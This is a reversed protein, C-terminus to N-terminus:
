FTVTWQETNRKNKLIKTATKELKINAWPNTIKWWYIECAIWLSARNSQINSPFVVGFISEWLNFIFLIFFFFLRSCLVSCVSVKVCARMGLMMVWTLLNFDFIVKAADHHKLYILVILSSKILNLLYFKM